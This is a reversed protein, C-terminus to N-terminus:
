HIISPSACCAPLRCCVKILNLVEEPPHKQTRFTIWAKSYKEVMATHRQIHEWSWNKRRRQVVDGRISEYLFKWRCVSLPMALVRWQWGPLSPLDGM